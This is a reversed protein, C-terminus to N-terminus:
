NQFRKNTIENTDNKSEKFKKKRENIRKTMKTKRERETENDKKGQILGNWVM